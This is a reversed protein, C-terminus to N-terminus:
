KIYKIIPNQRKWQKGSRIQSFKRNWKTLDTSAKKNPKSLQM